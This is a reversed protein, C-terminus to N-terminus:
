FDGGHAGAPAAATAAAHSTAEAPPADKVAAYLVGDALLVGLGPMAALQEAVSRAQAPPTPAIDEAAGLAPDLAVVVGTPRLLALVRQARTQGPVWAAAPAQLARTAAARWRQRQAIWGAIGGPDVFANRASRLFTELERHGRRDLRAELTWGDSSMNGYAQILERMDVASMGPPIPADGRSLEARRLSDRYVALAGPTANATGAWTPQSALIDACAIRDGAAVDDGVLDSVDYMRLGIRRPDDRVAGAAPLELDIGHPTQFWCGGSCACFRDLYQALSPRLAADGAEPVPMLAAMRQRLTDPALPRRAAPQAEGHADYPVEYVSIGAAPDDGVPADILDPRPHRAALVVTGDPLRSWRLAFRDFILHVVTPYRGYAPDPMIQRRQGSLGADLLLRRRQPRHEFDLTLIACFQELTNEPDLPGFVEGGHGLLPVDRFPCGLAALAATASDEVEVGVTGAVTSAPTADATAASASTASAAAAAALVPTVPVQAKWMVVGTVAFTVLAALVWASAAISTTAAVTAAPVTAMMHAVGSPVPPPQTPTLLLVVGASGATAPVGLRQRLSALGRAVRTRATREPVGLAAAVAPFDLGALYRLEVPLRDQARLRALGQRMRELREDDPGAAVPAPVEGVAVLPLWGRRDRRRHSRAANAVVTMLWRTASGAGQDRWRGASRVVLVAADQLADEARNGCIWRAMRYSAEAHRAWLAALAARDGSRQYALLDDRDADPGDADTDDAQAPDSPHPLEMPRDCRSATTDM